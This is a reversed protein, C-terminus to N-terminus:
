RIPLLIPKIHMTDKFAYHPLDKKTMRFELFSPIKPEQKHHEMTEDYPFIAVKAHGARIIGLEKAAAYSLDITYKKSYPGRDTVRVIVEKGTALHKVRLKTGFGYKLHACTFGNKDYTEGSATKRGHFRNAYYSAVGVVSDQPQAEATICILTAFALISLLKKMCNPTEQLRKLATNPKCTRM